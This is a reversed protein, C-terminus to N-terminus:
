QEYNNTSSKQGTEECQAHDSAEAWLAVDKKRCASAFVMKLMRMKRWASLRWGHAHTQGVGEIDVDGYGRFWVKRSGYSAKLWMSVSISNRCAVVVILDCGESVLVESRGGLM